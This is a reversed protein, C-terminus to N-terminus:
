AHASWQGTPAAAELFPLEIDVQYDGNQDARAGMTHEGPYLKALRESVNRLGLMSLQLREDAPTAAAATGDNRIRVRLRDGHRTLHIDLKGPQSRLAIGHRIANEVLPQLLLYPVRVSLVEPGIHWKLLLRDGLRAKEIALYTETLAIEDALAVEHSESGDLTARLFDGLRAIMHRAEDNRGNAVLSSIANLGNFLFHPHLQYRLARLEADRALSVAEITRAQEHELEAYYAVVAHIACFAILALWCDDIGQFIGSWEFAFSREWGVALAMAAGVVNNALALVYTVSLMAPAFIWWPTRRRWLVRQIFTLPICWVLYAVLYLTRYALDQGNGLAPLALVLMCLGIPLGAALPLWFPPEARQQGTANIRIRKL